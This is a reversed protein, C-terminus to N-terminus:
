SSKKENSWWGKLISEIAAYRLTARAAGAVLFRLGKCVRGMKLAQQGFGIPSETPPAIGVLRSLRKLQRFDLSALVSAGGM